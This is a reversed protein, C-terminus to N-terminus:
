IPQLPQKSALAKLQQAFGDATPFLLGFGALAVAATMYSFTLDSSGQGVILGFIAITEVAALRMIFVIFLASLYDNLVPNPKSKLSLKVIMPPVLLANLLLILSVVGLILALPHELSPPLTQDASRNQVAQNALFLYILSSALMAVTVIQPVRVRQSLNAQDLNM